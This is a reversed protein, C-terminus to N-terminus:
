GLSEVYEGYDDEDMLEELAAEDDVRMRFMWGDDLPSENVLEPKELVEGNIATVTGSAPAKLESTTKVSEILGIEENAIVDRGVEPAEIYVIDGLQSQAYDSIGVTAAGDDDLRIWVHEGSYRTEIV